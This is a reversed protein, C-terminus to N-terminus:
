MSTVPKTVRILQDYQIHDPWQINLEQLANVVPDIDDRENGLSVGEGLYFIWLVIKVRKAFSTRIRRVMKKLTKQQLIGQPVTKL